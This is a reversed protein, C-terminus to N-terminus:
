DRPGKQASSRTHCTLLYSGCPCLGGRASAFFGTNCPWWLLRGAAGPCDPCTASM